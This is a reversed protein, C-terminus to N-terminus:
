NSKEKWKDNSSAHDLVWWVETVPEYTGCTQQYDCRNVILVKIHLLPVYLSNCIQLSESRADDNIHPFLIGVLHLLHYKNWIKNSTWCTEREMIGMMLLELTNYQHDSGTTNPAKTKLNDTHHPPPQTDPKCAAAKLLLRCVLCVVRLEVGYRCSSFWLVLYGLCRGDTYYERAGSSPCLPAGFCTSCAIFDAIFIM